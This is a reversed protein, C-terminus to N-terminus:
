CGQLFLARPRDQEDIIEDARQMLKGRIDQTGQQQRFSSPIHHASDGRHILVSPHGVKEVTERCRNACLAVITKRRQMLRLADIQRVGIQQLIPPQLASLPFPERGEVMLGQYSEESTQWIMAPRWSRKKVM